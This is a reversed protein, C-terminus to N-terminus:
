GCGLPAVCVLVRICAHAFGGSKDAVATGGLPVAGTGATYPLGPDPGCSLLTRRRCPAQTTTKATTTGGAPATGRAARTTVHVMMHMAAQHGILM